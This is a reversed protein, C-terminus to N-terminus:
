DLKIVRFLETDEENVIDQIVQFDSFEEESMDDIFEEIRNTSYIHEENTPPGFEKYEPVVHNKIFELLRAPFERQEFSVIRVIFTNM